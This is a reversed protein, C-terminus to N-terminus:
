WRIPLRIISPMDLHCLLETLFSRDRGIVFAQWREGKPVAAITGSPCQENHGLLCLPYRFARGKDLLYNPIREM